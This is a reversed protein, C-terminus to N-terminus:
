EVRSAQMRIPTTVWTVGVQDVVIAASSRIRLTTSRNLSSDHVHGLNIWAMWAQFLPLCPLGIAAPLGGVAAQTACVTSAFM